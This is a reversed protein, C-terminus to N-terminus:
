IDSAKRMKTYDRSQQVLLNEPFLEQGASMVTWGNKPKKGLTLTLVKGPVAFKAPIFGITHSITGDPAVRRLHWHRYMEQRKLPTTM